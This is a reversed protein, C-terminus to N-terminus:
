KRPTQCVPSKPMFFDMLSRSRSGQMFTDMGNARDVNGHLKAWAHLGQRAVVRARQESLRRVRPWPCPMGRSAAHEEGKATM